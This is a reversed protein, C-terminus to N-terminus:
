VLFFFILITDFYYVFLYYKRIYSNSPYPIVYQHQYCEYTQVSHDKLLILDLKSQCYEKNDIKIRNTVPDKAKNFEVIAEIGYSRPTIRREISNPNLALSVAGRVVSQDYKKPAHVQIPTFEAKVRKQLYKSQSLGGTLIITDLKLGGMQDKQERILDL